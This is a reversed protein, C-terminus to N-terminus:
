RMRKWDGAVIISQRYAGGGCRDPGTLKLSLADASVTWHYRVPKFPEECWGNGEVPNNNKSSPKTYIGGRLELLSPSLYGVDLLNAGGSPVAIHWGVKNISLVWSGAPQKGAQQRTLTRKWTGALAAPPASAPLVRATTTETTATRGDTAVARVLFHHTGPTMWSTVLYDENYGYDYPAHHEVWAVKGDILFDVAAVKAAPLSPFAYWHIRHPLVTKGHLSSTVTFGTERSATSGYAVGVGVIVTAVLALVVSLRKM